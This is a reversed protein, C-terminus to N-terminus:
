RPVFTTATAAVVAGGPPPAAKPKGAKRAAIDPEAAMYEVEIEAAAVPGGGGAHIETLEHSTDGL